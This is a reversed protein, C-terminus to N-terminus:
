VGPHGAGRGELKAAVPDVSLEMLFLLAETPLVRRMDAVVAARREGAEKRLHKDVSERFATVYRRQEGILSKGAPAGHGVYLTADRDLERDLRDLCALWEELYGDALYAHMGGYVLDGVFVTREDLTWLSDAPSEAPGLDRVALSIDGLGLIAGTAIDRNPFVRAAPWEAGMMPGVIQNKVGDDREITRRVGPTAVIPVDLGHLMEALGAYHDPHAHTVIAGLIPKGRGDLHKRVARADSVTLMGDIVVLGEDGEVVYSNVPMVQGEIREIRPNNMVVEAASATAPSAPRGISRDCEDM